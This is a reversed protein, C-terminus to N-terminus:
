ASGLKPTKVAKHKADYKKNLAEVVTASAEVMPSNYLVQGSEKLIVIDWGNKQAIESVSEEVKQNLKGIERQYMRQIKEKADNAKNQHEKRLQLLEEQDSELAEKRATKAKAELASLKNKIKSEIQQIEQGLRQQEKMLKEEISKAEKIQSMVTQGSVIKIVPEKAFTSLPSLMLATLLVKKM